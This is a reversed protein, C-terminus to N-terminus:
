EDLNEDIIYAVQPFKELIQQLVFKLKISDTNSAKLVKDKAKQLKVDSVASTIAVTAFGIKTYDFKSIAKVTLNASTESTGIKLVGFNDISSARGGEITWAIEKTANGTIEINAYFSLIKGKEVTTNNPTVTISKVEDKENKKISFRLIATEVDSEKWFGIEGQMQQNLYTKLEDWWEDKIIVDKIGQVFTKFGEEFATTNLLIRSLEFKHQEIAKLVKKVVDEKLEDKQILEVLQDTLSKFDDTTAASSYKLCWLPLKSKQKCYAVVGWRVNKLSTLEPVDSLHQMDFIGILLDKLDKEEKSGFRVSLKTNSTRKAWAAFVDVIKDRMNPADIPTGLDVGNLENVYKRMAFSLVAMNPINSYLGFPPKTLPMLENGLNFTSRNDKKLKDFIEDVKKQTLVLPHNAPATDKLSLDTDVIYNDNDDKFLFKAPAYQGSFKREAEARNTSVLMVEASNKSNQTKWFTMPRQRMSLMADVAASFINNDINENIYKALNSANKTQQEDKYYITVTGQKLGAIWQNIIDKANKDNVQQPERANHNLAVNATAVYYYFRSKQRGNNEFVEDFLVFVVNKYDETNALEKITEQMKQKEAIDLAFFMAINLTYTEKFSTKIYSRLLYNDYNCSLFAFAPQRVLSDVFINKISNENTTKDYGVIKIIDSFNSEARKIAENIENQPLSAFAILFNNQPDRQIIQNEDFYNLIEDLQNEFDEGEFLYKINKTSPMIKEANEVILRMANLLLIGKFVKQYSLDLELVTKNRDFYTQTVIGFKITDDTFEDLFYDWLKDATLLLKNDCSNSDKLFASFGNETDYMFQMVTRNASGLQNAIASSLFASYPHFPYIDKIDRASQQSDNDTLYSILQTHKDMRDSRHLNYQTEDLKRISAAMIRYTTLSEMNYQLIHFRGEMREIDSNNYANANRHSILYLYINQKETLEALGQVMDTMGSTITDMVSTFEDWIILLGDAVNNEVIEKEIESLWERINSSTFHVSYQPQALAEELALYVDTDSTRLKKIIDEKTKAYSRLEPENAIIANIDIPTSELYDIAKEYDSQVAITHGAKRLSDKIIRELSLRFSRMDYIKGNETGKLVIPFLRKNKRLNLLRHKLEALLIRDEIYDAIEDLDNCLLHKVVAGAHSKGTGFTGKVWISKRNSSQNSSVADITKSLLNNFQTTPIFQKWYGIAENQLNFVPHFYDQLSIIDSYKM